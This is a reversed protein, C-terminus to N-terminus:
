HMSDVKRRIQKRFITVLRIDSEYNNRLHNIRHKDASKRPADEPKVKEHADKHRSLDSQERFTKKRSSEADTMRKTREKCGESEEYGNTLYKNQKLRVWDIRGDRRHVVSRSVISLSTLKKRAKCVWDSVIHVGRRCVIYFLPTRGNIEAASAGDDADIHPRSRRCIILRLLHDGDTPTTVTGSTYSRRLSNRSDLAGPPLRLVARWPVSGDERKQGVYNISSGEVAVQSMHEADIM